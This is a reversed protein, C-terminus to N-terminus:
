LCLNLAHFNTELKREKTLLISPVEFGFSEQSVRMIEISNTQFLKMLFRNITFDLSSLESKNLTCAELGYLLMPICKSVILQM